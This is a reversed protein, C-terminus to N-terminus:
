FSHRRSHFDDEHRAPLGSMQTAEADLRQEVFVSMDGAKVQRLRASDTMM